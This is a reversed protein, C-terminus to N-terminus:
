VKRPNPSEHKEGGKQGETKNEEAQRKSSAEAKKKANGFARKFQPYKSHMQEIAAEIGNTREIYYGDNRKIADSRLHLIYYYANAVRSLLERETKTM